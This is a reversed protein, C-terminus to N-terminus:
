RRHSRRPSARHAGPRVVAALCRRRTRRSRPISLFPTSPSTRSRPCGEAEAALARARAAAVPRALRAEAPRDAEAWIERGGMGAGGAGGKGAMATEPPAVKACALECALLLVLGAVRGSTMRWFFVGPMWPRRPGTLQLEDRLEPGSSPERLFWVGAPWLLVPRRRLRTRRLPRRGPGRGRRWRRSSWGTWWRCRRGPAAGGAHGGGGAAGGGHGGGGASAGAQGSGAMAGAGGHGGTGAGATGAHGSAGATSGGAGAQVSGAAGTTGGGGVGGRGGTTGGAGAPGSGAAGGAGADGTHSTPSSSSGCAAVVLAFSAVVM